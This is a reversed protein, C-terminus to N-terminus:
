QPAPANSDVTPLWKNIPCKETAMRLKAKTACGCLKCKGTGAFAASDWEPCSKCINMREALQEETVTAMGSKIFKGAATAVSKVQNGLSEAKKRLMHQYAVLAQNYLAIAKDERAELKRLWYNYLVEPCRTDMRMFGREIWRKKTKPRAYVTMGKVVERLNEFIM